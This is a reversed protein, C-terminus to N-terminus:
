GQWNSGLAQAVRVGSVCGDEHFGNRWYAGCFWTDRVGNIKHWNQQAEIGELTFVPHAYNFQGLIKSPEIRDTANLTVIFPTECNFGQLINMNYSLTAPVQSDDGLLYNWSSWAKKTKPLLREDTHLVVDNNRYPLAGLIAKEDDHADDGLL